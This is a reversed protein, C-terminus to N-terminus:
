KCAEEAIAALDIATARAAEAAARAASASTHNEGKLWRDGWRNGAPVNYVQKVCLIAFRARQETTVVPLPIEELLTVSTCGSKLGNDTLGVEGEGRFLRPYGAVKGHIPSLLVALLPHTYVHLWGPGCLEGEGSATRPVGLVWQFGGHTRMRADTLKYITTTVGMKRGMEEASIASTVGRQSHRRDETNEVNTANGCETTAHLKM